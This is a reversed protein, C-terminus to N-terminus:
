CPTLLGSVNSLDQLPSRSGISPSAPDFAPAPTTAPKAERKELLADATLM